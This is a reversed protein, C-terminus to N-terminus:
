EVGAGRQRGETEAERSVSSEEALYGTLGRGDDENTRQSRGQDPDRGTM